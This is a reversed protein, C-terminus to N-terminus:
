APRRGRDKREHKVRDVRQHLILKRPQPLCRHACAFDVLYGQEVEATVRARRRSASEERLSWKVRVTLVLDVLNGGLDLLHGAFGLQEETADLVDTELWAKTQDFLPAAVDGMLMMNLMSTNTILIDPPTAIMDWRTLLEGCEPDQSQSVAEVLDNGSKGGDALAKRM